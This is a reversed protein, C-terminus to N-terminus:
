RPKRPRAAPAPAGNGNAHGDDFLSGQEADGKARAAALTLVGALKDLKTAAADVALAARAVDLGPLNGAHPSALLTDLQDLAKRTDAVRQRLDHLM